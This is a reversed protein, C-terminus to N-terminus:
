DTIENFERPLTIPCPSKSEDWEVSSCVLTISTV